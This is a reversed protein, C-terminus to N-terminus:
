NSGPMRLTLRTIILACAARSLVSSRMLPPRESSHGKGPRADRRPRRSLTPSSRPLDGAGGGSRPHPHRRPSGATIFSKKIDAATEKQRPARMKATFLPFAEGQNNNWLSSFYNFSPAAILRVRQGTLLKCVRLIKWLKGSFTKRM